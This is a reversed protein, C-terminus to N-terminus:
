HIVATCISKEGGPIRPKAHLFNIYIVIRIRQCRLFHCSMYAALCILADYISVHSKVFTESINYTKLKIMQTIFFMNTQKRSISCCM